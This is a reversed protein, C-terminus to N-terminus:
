GDIQTYRVRANGRATMNLGRSSLLIIRLQWLLHIVAKCWISNAKIEQGEEIAVLPISENFYIFHNTYTM